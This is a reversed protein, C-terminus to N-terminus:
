KRSQGVTVANALVAEVGYHDSPQLGDIARDWVRMGHLSDGCGRAFIHDIEKPEEPMALPNATADYTPRDCAARVFGLAHMGAVLRAFEPDGPACNFDGAVVALQGQADDALWGLLEDIQAARVHADDLGSQLHLNWVDLLRGGPLEVITRLVGKAVVREIGEEAQFVRNEAHRIAHRSLTMLGTSGLLCAPSCCSARHLEPLAFPASAEEGWAEQLVIVDVSQGALRSAICRCRAEVDPALPWPLGFLNLTQVRVPSPAVTSAPQLPREAPVVAARGSRSTTTWLATAALGALLLARGHRPWPRRGRLIWGM